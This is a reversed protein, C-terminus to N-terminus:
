RKTGISIAAIVSAVLVFGLIIKWSAVLAWLILGVVALALVALVVVLFLAGLGIAKDKISPTTM